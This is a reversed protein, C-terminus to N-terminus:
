PTICVVTQSVGTNKLLKDANILPRQEEVSKMRIITSKIKLYVATKAFYHSHIHHGFICIFNLLVISVLIDTMIDKSAEPLTAASASLIILNLYLSVEIVDMYFHKYIGKNLWSLAGVASFVIITALLSYNAGGLPNFSFVAYLTCRVLLLLGTWYRTRPKYPSFYSTLLPKLKTMLQLYKRNRFRYLWQGLVVVTTYPIIVFVLVSFTTVSLVLHKSDLYLLNGDKMWVRVYKENPYELNVFYYVDIIVKLVKNYSMLLLTALVAIPNSGVLKSVITSYRSAIIMVSILTCIYLPFVYQLWTQTYSDMGDFFCVSFGFDLSLWAVFITLPNTKNSFFLFGKNVQIINAYLIFGNITGTTVTMRTLSLFLILAMGAMVFVILLTLYANSCVACQSNGLLLSYNTACKGCLIGSRNFACQVDPNDLYMDSSEKACYEIPCSPYLVLGEYSGNKHYSGDIWVKAGAPQLISVRDEITCNVHNKLRKVCDCRADSQVFADPCPILHVNINTTSEGITQCLGDPHLTLVELSDSENLSSFLNFKINSCSDNIPRSNQKVKLIASPRTTALITSKVVHSGQGVAALNLWFTQGRYVSVNMIKSYHDIVSSSCFKLQYSDSAISNKNDGKSISLSCHSIFFDYPLYTTDSNMRSRDLLGGYLFNGDKEAFDNSSEITPCFQTDTVQLFAAPVEWVQKQEKLINTVNSCQIDVVSDKHYIAGGYQTAKNSETKIFTSRGMTLVSKLEFYIAGGLDAVNSSFSVSCDSLKVNINSVHLAGGQTARNNHFTTNGLIGLVCQKESTTSLAGGTNGTNNCFFSNGSLSVNSRVANIGGGGSDGTNGCIITDGEFSASSEILTIGGGGSNGSNDLIKTIGAFFLVSQNFVGIAGNDGYNKRFENSGKFLVYHADNLNVAGRGVNNFYFNYGTIVATSYSFGIACDSNNHAYISSLTFGDTMEAFLAGGLKGSNNFLTPSLMNKTTNKTNYICLSGCERMSLISGKAINGIFTLNEKFGELSSKQIYMGGGRNIALNNTFTLQAEKFSANSNDMLSFAGGTKARNHSFIVSSTITINSNEIALAGGTGELLEELSSNHYCETCGTNNSFSTENGTLLVISSKAYIAGGMNQAKNKVFSSGSIILKTDQTAIIAGGSGSRHGEFLCNTITITSSNSHIAQISGNMNQFVVSSITVEINTFFLMSFGENKNANTKFHLEELKFYIVNEVIMNEGCMIVTSFKSTTGRLTINSVNTLYLPIQLDHSGSLFLFETGSTFYSTSDKIYAELTHCPQGPCWVSPEDNPQIYFIGEGRCGLFHMWFLVVLLM